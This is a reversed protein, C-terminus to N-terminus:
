HALIAISGLVVLLFLVALAFLAWAIRNKANEAGSARQPPRVSSRRFRTTECTM